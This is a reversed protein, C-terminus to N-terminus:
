YVNQPLHPLIKQWWTKRNRKVGNWNPVHPLHIVQFDTFMIRNQPEFCDIFEIDYHNVDKNTETFPNDKDVIAPSKFSFLQFYGIPSDSYPGLSLGVYCHRVFRVDPDYIRCVQRLDVPEKRYAGYLSDIKLPRVNMMSRFNKPLITDADIHVTWDDRKLHKVCENLAKGKNLISGDEYMRNTIVCRVGHQSCLEQTKSDEPSTVVTWEDFHVKNLPMTVALYDDYNVCFTFAELFRM